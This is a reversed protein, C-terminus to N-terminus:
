EKVTMIIQQIGLGSPDELLSRRAVIVDFLVKNSFQNTKTRYTITAPVQLKWLYSPSWSPRGKKVMLPTHDVTLSVIMERKIVVDFNGSNEIADILGQKGENNFWRMSAENLRKRINSYNFDFTDVLAKQLWNAVTSDKQNPQSLAVLEILSGNEDTAFYVNQQKMQFVYFSTAVSFFLSVVGVLAIKWMKGYMDKYFDNRHVVTELGKNTTPKKQLKAKQPSASRKTNTKKTEM